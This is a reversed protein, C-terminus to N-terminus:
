KNIAISNLWQIIEHPSIDLVCACHYPNKKCDNCFKNKCFIHTHNGLPAWRGPHMPRVPPFIGIAHKNLIAALHLTGTSAAILADCANIVAILDDLNTKGVLNLVNPCELFINQLEAEENETGTLIIQFKSPDLNKILQIYNHIGWERASGKSKPHLILKFKNQELQSQITQPLTPLDKLVFMKKIEDISPISKICLPKLLNFNLQAEHLNSNKRSFAILSNCFLWNYWRHSTAIRHPVKMNCLLKSINFTPLIIIATHINHQIFIKKQEKSNLKELENYDIIEDISQIYKLISKTYSSCLFIIPNNPYLKKLTYSLPITLIVDGISDTRSILISTNPPINIKMKNIKEENQLFGKYLKKVNM